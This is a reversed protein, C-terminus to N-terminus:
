VLPDTGAPRLANATALAQAHLADLQAPDNAKLAAVAQTGINILGPVTTEILTMIKLATDIDDM